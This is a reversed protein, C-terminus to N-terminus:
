NCNQLLTVYFDENKTPRKKVVKQSYGALKEVIERSDSCKLMIPFSNAENKVYEVCLFLM